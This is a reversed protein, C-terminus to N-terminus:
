RITNENQALAENYMELVNKQQKTLLFHLFAKCKVGTLPKAYKSWFTANVNTKYLYLRVM